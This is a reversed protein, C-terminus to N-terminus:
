PAALRCHADHRVVSRRRLPAHPHRLQRQRLHGLRCLRRRPLRRSHGPDLRRQRIDFDARGAVVPGRQLPPCPHAVTRRPFGALGAVAAGPFGCGHRPPHGTRSCRYAKRRPGMPQRRLAPRLSRLQRRSAAVLRGMDGLRRPVQRAPRRRPRPANPLRRQPSRKPSRTRVVLRAQRPPGHRCQGGVSLCDLRDLIRGSRRLDPRPFDNQAPGSTIREPPAAREVVAGGDLFSLMRKRAVESLRFSFDGNVTSIDIEADAATEVTLILGAVNVYDPVPTSPEPEWARYRFKRGETTALKWATGEIRDTKRPRWSQLMTVAGGSVRVSGNWSRPAADTLGFRIRLCATEAQAALPLFAALGALLFRLTDFRYRM